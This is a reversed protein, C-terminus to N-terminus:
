KAIFMDLLKIKILIGIQDSNGDHQGALNRSCPFYGVQITQLTFFHNKAPNGGLQMGFFGPLMRISNKKSFRFATKVGDYIIKFFSVQFFNIIMM